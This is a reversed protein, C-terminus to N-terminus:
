PAPTEETTEVPPPPPLKVVELKSIAKGRLEAVSLKFGELEVSDGLEPQHRLAEIFAGAITICGAECTVSTGLAKNFELLTVDGSVHWRDPSLSQVGPSPSDYEDWIEGVLQELLDELTILGSTGGFEDIVVAMQLKRARMEELLKSAPMSDPVFYVQRVFASLRFEKGAVPGSSPAGAKVVSQWWDFLDRTNLIGIVNDSSSKFVPLKSHKTKSVVALIEVLALNDSIADMRTRPVMVQKVTLEKLELARKLLDTEKDGLEGAKRSADFLINFEDASHAPYQEEDPSPVRMIKLVVNSLANMVWLLPYTLFIFVRLPTALLLSVREPLMIAWAKPVQEGLIVHLMSLITFSVIVGIGAPPEVGALGPIFDMLMKVAEHISEEGIWGLALSALTIGLQAGAITMGMDRQLQHVTRAGQHGNDLLEQVRSRRLKILAFEAAVFLANLILFLFMLGLWLLLSATNM